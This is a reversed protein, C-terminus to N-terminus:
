YAPMNKNHSAALQMVSILCVKGSGRDFRDFLGDLHSGAREAAAAANSPFVCLNM